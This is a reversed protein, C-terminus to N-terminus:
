NLRALRQTALNYNQRVQEVDPAGPAQALYAEYFKVAKRLSNMHFHIDGLDRLHGPEDPQIIRLHEVVALALSWTEERFYINRLNMLMRELIAQRPAPELWEMRFEGQYGTTRAVLQKCDEVSLVRGGFFPDILVPGDPDHVRVIFHGPIEVGEAPLGLREAISLYIVSLSIPIGTRRDLVENIYSNRPDLYRYLNGSLGLQSFLFRALEVAQDRNTQKSGIADEAWDALGNLLAMYYTIDLHPYAIEQAFRLAARPLNIPTYSLETRFDIKESM